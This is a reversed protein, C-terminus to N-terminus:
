KQAPDNTITEPEKPKPDQRKSSNGWYFGVLMSAVGLFYPVITKAHENGADTVPAFTVGGMYGFILIIIFVAVKLAAGLKDEM